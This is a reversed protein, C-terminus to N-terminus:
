CYGRAQACGTTCSPTLALCQWRWAKFICLQHPLAALLRDPHNMSRKADHMLVVDGPRVGVLRRAIGRVTGFPGWDVASANWLTVRQELEGAAEVMSHRIVGHPPRFLRQRHGTVDEIAHAGDRVERHAKESSILRPHCHSWTHNGVAHGEAIIRRALATHQMAQRGILFFTANCDMIALLDLFRPTWEADPGDDFTLYIGEPPQTSVINM